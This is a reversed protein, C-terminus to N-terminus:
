LAKNKRHQWITLYQGTAMKRADQKAKEAHHGEFLADVSELWLALWRAFHLMDISYNMQEDVAIHKESPNGNFKGTGLLTREWFDTIKEIHLAWQNDPILKNFIPGLLDDQRIKTYFHHVLNHIDKRDEITKM